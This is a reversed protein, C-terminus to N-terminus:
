LLHFIDQSYVTKAMKGFRRFMAPHCLRSQTGHYLFQLLLQSRFYEVPSLLRNTRRRGSDQDYGLSTVHQELCSTYSIYYFLFFM